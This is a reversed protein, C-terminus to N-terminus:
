TSVARRSRAMLSGAIKARAESRSSAALWRILCAVAVVRRCGRGASRWGGRRLTAAAPGRWWGAFVAAFSVGCPHSGPLARAPRGAGPQQWLESVLCTWEAYLGCNPSLFLVICRASLTFRLGRRSYRHQNRPMVSMFIGLGASRPSMRDRATTVARHCLHRCRFGRIPLASIAPRLKSAPTPQAAVAAHGLDQLCHRRITM